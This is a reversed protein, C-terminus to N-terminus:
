EENNKLLKFLKEQPTIKTIQPKVKMNNKNYDDEALQNRFIIIEDGCRICVQIKYNGTDEKTIYHQNIGCNCKKGFKTPKYQKKEQDELEENNKLQKYLIRLEEKAKMELDMYALLRGEETELGNPILDTKQVTKSHKDASSFGVSNKGGALWSIIRIVQLEQALSDTIIDTHYISVIPTAFILNISKVRIQDYTKLIIEKLINKEKILNFLKEFYNHDLNTNFSM